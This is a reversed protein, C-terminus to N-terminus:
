VDSLESSFMFLFISFIILQMCFSEEFSIRGNIIATDVRNKLFYFFGYSFCVLSANFCIRSVIFKLFSRIM